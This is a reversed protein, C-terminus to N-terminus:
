GSTQSSAAGGGGGRSATSGIVRVTTAVTVLMSAVVNDPGVTVVVNDAGATVSVTWTAGCTSGITKTSIAHDSSAAESAASSILTRM